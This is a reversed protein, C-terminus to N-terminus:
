QIVLENDIMLVGLTSEAIEQVARFAPLSHVSGTLTVKGNEVKVDILGMDINSNRELAAQLDEAIIRDNYNEDPVIALENTVGLVGKLSLTLEESRVKKWFADVSGRLTVWGREVNIIIDTSDFDPQWLLVNEISAKLQADSPISVNPPYQIILDNRVYKVGAVAWADDDAAKYATYNPVTGTLIVEGESVEVKIGSADVRSDWYLQDVVDKKIQEKTKIGLVM